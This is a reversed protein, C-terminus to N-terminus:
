IRLNILLHDSVECGRSCDGITYCVPRSSVSYEESETRREAAEIGTLRRMRATEPTDPEFVFPLQGILRTRDQVIMGRSGRNGARELSRGAPEALLMM